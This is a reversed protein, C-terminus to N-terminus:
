HDSSGSSFFMIIVIEVTILIWEYYVLVVFTKTLVIKRWRFDLFLMHRPPELVRLRFETISLFTLLRSMVQVMKSIPIIRM